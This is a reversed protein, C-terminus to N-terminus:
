FRMGVASVPGHFIADVGKQQEGYGTSYNIALARYGIMSTFKYGKFEFERNYGGYVQWSIKTGIGFGGVDGRLSFEETPSFRHRFRVGVIPDVWQVGDARRDAKGIRFV